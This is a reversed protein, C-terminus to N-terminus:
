LTRPDRVTANGWNIDQSRRGSLKTMMRDREADLSIRALRSRQFRRVPVPSFRVAFREGGVCETFCRRIERPLFSSLQALFGGSYNSQANLDRLSVAGWLPRWMACILICFLRFMLKLMTAQGGFENALWNIWKCNDEAFIQDSRRWGFHQM